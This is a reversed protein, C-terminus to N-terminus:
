PKMDLISDPKTSGHRPVNPKSAVANPSLMESRSVPTQTAMHNALHDAVVEPAAVPFDAAANALSQRPITLGDFTRTTV